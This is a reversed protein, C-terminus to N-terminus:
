RGEHRESGSKQRLTGSLYELEVPDCNHNHEARVLDAEWQSSAVTMFCKRCFSATTGDAKDRHVFPGDTLVEIEGLHFVPAWIHQPTGINGCFEGPNYKWLFITKIEQFPCYVIGFNL